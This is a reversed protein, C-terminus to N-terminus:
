TEECRGEARALAREAMIAGQYRTLPQMPRTGDTIGDERARGYEARAWDPESDASTVEMIRAWLALVEADTLKSVDVKGDSGNETKIEQTSDDSFEWPRIYGAAASVARRKRAVCGGNYQSGTDSPTTNGEVTNVYGDSVSEVIGTHGSLIMIDGPRPTRTILQPRNNEYWSLLASCSATRMPLPLGAENYCWQVFVMCWPYDDGSVARGYYWTNYKVNNSGSPWETTGVQSRPIALFSEIDM